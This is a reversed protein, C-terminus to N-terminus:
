KLGMNGTYSGATRRPTRRLKDDGAQWRSKGVYSNRKARVVASTSVCEVEAWDADSNVGLM